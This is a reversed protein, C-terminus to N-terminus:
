KGTYQILYQSLTYANLNEHELEILINNESNIIKFNDHEIDYVIRGEFIDCFYNNEWDDITFDFDFGHGLIIPELVHFKDLYLSNM